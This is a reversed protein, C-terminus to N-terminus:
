FSRAGAPTPRASSTAATGVLAALTEPPLKVRALVPLHDSGAYPGLWAEEIALGGSAFVHDIALQPLGKRGTPYSPLFRPMPKLGTATVFGQYASSWPTANFDGAVLREGEFGKALDALEAFEVAHLRPSHLQGTIHTGIVTLARPGSGFTVWARAPGAADSKALSGSASFPHRSLIAVACTWDDACHRQHPYRGALSKLLELRNPGFETLVLVDADSGDLYGALGEPDENHHWSNLALVTWAGPASLSIRKGGIPPWASEQALLAHGALTLFGGLAVVLVPRYGLGLGILASIALGAFHGRLNALLDLEPSRAGLGGALIAILSVILVTLTLRRGIKEFQSRMFATVSRVM